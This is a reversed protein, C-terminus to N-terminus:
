KNMGDDVGEGYADALAQEIAAELAARQMLETQGCHATAYADALGMLILVAPSPEQEREWWDDFSSGKHPNVTEVGSKVGKNPFRNLQGPAGGVHEQYDSYDIPKDSM